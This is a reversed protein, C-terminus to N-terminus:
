KFIKVWKNSSESGSLKGLEVCLSTALKYTHTPSCKGVDNQESPVYKDIKSRKELSHLLYSTIPRERKDM